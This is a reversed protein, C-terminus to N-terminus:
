AALPATRPRTEPSPSKFRHIANWSAMRCPVSLCHRVLYLRIRFCHFAGIQSQAISVLFETNRILEGILGGVLGLGIRRGYRQFLSRQGILIGREQVAGVTAQDADHCLIKLRQRAEPPFLNLVCDDEEPRRPKASLSLGIMLEFQQVVGAGALGRGAM